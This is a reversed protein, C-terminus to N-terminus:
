ELDLDLDDDLAQLISKEKKAMTKPMKYTPLYRYYVQLSLCCLTTAYWPDYEPKSQKVMKGSKPDREMWTALGPSDWHGDNKQHGTVVDAFSKNWSRWKTRGAHFMAQTEYYWNYVPSSYAQYVNEDKWVPRDNRYIYDVVKRAETSRGEGVLQLCLTGAGQMGMSGPGSSRAPSYWFLGNAFSIDKLFAISKEIAEMLGKVDSGAVYGSKLAQVQWGTVSLDWRANKAYRYDFGGQDQQGQVVFTLGRDMAPKLFPIKTLGYAESLAYTVIGNTYARGLYRGKEPVAMMRSALYNMAKQVTTGFEESSPTEGHALFTLLGLGGMADPESKSWSGNPNQTQKLWRLARLVAIETRTSGGYKKMMRRRGGSSRGEYLSPLKLATDSSRVDLVSSFDLTDDTQTLENNFDETAVEVEEQPVEPREVTPVLEDALQELKQLEELKKTDLEKVDLEEITVEVEATDNRVTPKFFAVACVILIIHVVLSVSPGILHELMQRRHYAALIADIDWAMAEAQELKETVM